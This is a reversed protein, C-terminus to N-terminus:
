IGHHIRLFSLFFFFGGSFFVPFLSLARGCKGQVEGDRWLEYNMGVQYWTVVMHGPHKERRKEGRGTGEMGDTEWDGDM